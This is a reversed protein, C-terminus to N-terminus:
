QAHKRRVKAFDEDYTPGNSLREPADTSYLCAIAPIVMPERDATLACLLDWDGMERLSEDFPAAPLGARHGVASIDALNEKLLVERSYPRLM